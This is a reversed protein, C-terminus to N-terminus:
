LGDRELAGKTLNVVKPRANQKKGNTICVRRECSAASYWAGLRHQSPVALRASCKPPVTCDNRGKNM